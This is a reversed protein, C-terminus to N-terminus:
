LEAGLNQALARALRQVEGNVEEQELTRDAARFALRITTKVKGDGVGPGDYRDLLRLSELNALGQGRAFWAIEAWPLDRRQVFSLDAEIAPYESYPRFKAPTAAALLADLLIEGAFAAAPLRRSEREADSVAGVVAVVADASNKALAAQGRAFADAAFPAWVLSEAALFPALIAEAIAKADFFDAERRAPPESWDSRWSGAIAFALRRAEFSEPAEPQGARGFARGIEFLGAGSRGHRLNRSVAEVVGPLLTQRLSRRGDDLPNSLNLREKAAGSVALWDRFPAEEEAATFPFSVTEFLGAAAAADAAREEIVRLPELVAGPGRAAPLRSPLRDYGWVRLVEEVLDEERRVDVRFFPISVNLHKGRREVSFGLRALAEVAFELTLREDGSLERLRALRLTTRRTRFPAGPADLLGPALAGGSGEVVLAAALELAAPIAELDAGREFRHSADTHLGHRRATRRVSVPDWWAAELLVNRTHETVATDLGGMVGALSVAREADAVVVDSAALEREVGDLTVLKEGRRAKRVILLGGALRDFDFAHLPQGTDWLGYNTADVASSIAKAGLRQLRSRVREPAPGNRIGCVLRVGFRRCLRPVQNVVSTLQEVSEGSVPTAATASKERRAIGALAAIDRALGRHGMADPRNPTIEVDLITDSGEAAASEAPLGGQELLHRVGAAGGAAAVDVHDDLWELSFKM